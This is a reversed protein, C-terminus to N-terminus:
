SKPAAMFHDFGHLVFYFMNSTDIMLLSNTIFSFFFVIKKIYRILWWQTAWCNLPIRVGTASNFAKSQTEPQRLRRLQGPTASSFSKYITVIIFSLYM